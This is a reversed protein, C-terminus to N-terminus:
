SVGALMVSRALNLLHTFANSAIKYDTISSLFNKFIEFRTRDSVYNSKLARIQPIIAIGLTNMYTM